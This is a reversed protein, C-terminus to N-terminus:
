PITVEVIVREQPGPRKSLALQQLYRDDVGLALAVGDVILKDMNNVDRRNYSSPLMVYDIQMQWHSRPPVDVTRMALTAISCVLEKYARAEAHMVRRGHNGNTYINNTSPPLQDLTFSIRNM